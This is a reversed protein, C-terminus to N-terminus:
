KEQEKFWDGVDIKQNRTGGETSELWQPRIPQWHHRCNYGGRHTYAPGSKGAWKYTWSDIQKKTYYKGVRRKCFQRSTSIINGIYLFHKIDISEAKHLNVENQYNMILDKAYLRAYNALPRGTVSAKGVLAGEISEVLSAFRSGGIVQDYVAQVVVDRQQTGINLYNRYYGDRLTEMMKRDVNTFNVSEDLYSYSTTIMQEVSRFDNVVRRMDSNYQSDFLRNVASHVKQAQKLNVKVGELRGDTTTQLIHLKDLISDQLKRISEEVMQVHKDQRRQLWRDAYQASRKIQRKSAM